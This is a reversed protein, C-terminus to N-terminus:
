SIGFEIAQCIADYNWARNEWFGHKQLARQITKGSPVQEEVERSRNDLVLRIRNVVKAFAVKKSHDRPLLSPAVDL